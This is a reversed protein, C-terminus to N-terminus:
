KISELIFQFDTLSVEFDVEMIVKRETEYNVFTAKFQSGEENDILDILYYDKSLQKAIVFVLLYYSWVVDAYKEGFRDRGEQYRQLNVLNLAQAKATRNIDVVKTDLEYDYITLFTKRQGSINSSFIYHGEPKITLIAGDISLLTCWVEGQDLLKQLGIAIALSGFMEPRKKHDETFTNILNSIDNVSNKVMSTLNLNVVKNSM